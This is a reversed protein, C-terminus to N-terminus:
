SEACSSACHFVTKKSRAASTNMLSSCRLWAAARMASNSRSTPRM